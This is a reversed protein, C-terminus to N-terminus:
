AFSRLRNAGKPHRDSVSRGKYAKSNCNVHLALIGYWVFSLMALSYVSMINVQWGESMFGIGLDM